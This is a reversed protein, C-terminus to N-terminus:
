CCTSHGLLTQLFGGTSMPDTLQFHMYGNELTDMLNGPIPNERGFVLQMPSYGSVRAQLNRASTAAVVASQMEDLGIITKEKVIKMLMLKLVAGHREALAMRWHATPPVIDHYVQFSRLVM